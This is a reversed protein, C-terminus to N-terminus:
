THKSTKFDNKEALATITYFVAYYIRNLANRNLAIEIAEDSKEINIKIFGSPFNANEENESNCGAMTIFATIHVKSSDLFACSIKLIFSYCRAIAMDENM